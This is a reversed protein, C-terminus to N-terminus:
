YETRIHKDLQLIMDDLERAIMGYENQRYKAPFNSTFDATKVRKVSYIIRQLFRADDRVNYVIILLVSIMSM